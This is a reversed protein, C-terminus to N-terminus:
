FTSRGREPWRHGSPWSKLIIKLVLKNPRELYSVVHFDIGTRTHGSFLVLSWWNTTPRPWQHGATAVQVHDSSKKLPWSMSPVQYSANQHILCKPVKQPERSILQSLKKRMKQSLSRHLNQYFVFFYINSNESMQCENAGKGEPETWLESHSKWEESM